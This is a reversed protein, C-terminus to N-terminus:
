LLKSKIELVVPSLTELTEYTVQRITAYLVENLKVSYLIGGFETKMPNDQNRMLLTLAKSLNNDVHAGGNKDCILRVVERRHLIKNDDVGLSIATTREWWTKFAKLRYDKSLRFIPIPYLYENSNNSDDHHFYYGCLNTRVFKTIMENPMNVNFISYDCFDPISVFFASCFEQLLSKNNKSGDFLVRLKTAMEIAYEKKGKDYNDAYNQLFELQYIMQELWENKNRKAM